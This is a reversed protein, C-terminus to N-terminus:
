YRSDCLWSCPHGDRPPIQFFSVAFMQGSPCFGCVLRPATPLAAFCAWARYSNPVTLTFTAPMLH